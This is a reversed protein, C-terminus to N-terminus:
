VSAPAKVCVGEADNFVFGSGTCEENCARATATLSAAALLAMLTLRLATM